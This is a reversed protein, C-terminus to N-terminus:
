AMDVMFYAGVDAWPPHRFSDRWIWDRILLRAHASDIQTKPNEHLREVVLNLLLRKVM